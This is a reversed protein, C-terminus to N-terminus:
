CNYSAADDGEGDGDGDVAGLFVGVGVLGGGVSIVGAVGGAGDGVDVADGGDGCCMM